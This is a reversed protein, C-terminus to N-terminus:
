VFCVLLNFLLHCLHGLHSISSFSRGPAGPPQADVVAGMRMLNGIYLSNNASPSSDLHEKEPVFVFEHKEGRVDYIAGLASIFILGCCWLDSPVIKSQQLM